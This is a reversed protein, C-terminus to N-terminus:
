HHDHGAQPEYWENVVDKNVNARYRYWIYFNFAVALVLGYGIGHVATPIDSTRYDFHWEKGLASSAYFGFTPMVVLLVAGLFRAIRADEELIPKEQESM